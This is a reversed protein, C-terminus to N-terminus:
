VFLMWVNYAVIFVFVWYGMSKAIHSIMPRAGPEHSMAADIVELQDDLWRQIAAEFFVQQLVPVSSCQDEKARAEAHEGAARMDESLLLYEPLKLKRLAKNEAKLQDRERKTQELEAREVTVTSTYLGEMSESVELRGILELLLAPSAASIFEADELELDESLREPTFWGNKNRGGAADALRKLENYDSM